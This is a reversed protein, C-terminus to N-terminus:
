RGVSLPAITEIITGHGQRSVIHFHAGVRRARERMHKLGWHIKQTSDAQDVDFGSGDDSVRLTLATTDYVVEVRIVDPNAHRVSNTVAEQGIRLLQEEVDARARAPAGMAVCEFKVPAGSTTLEGAERLAEVLGRTELAPSRLNWISRRTERVYHEVRERARMVQAKLGSASADLQSGIDDFDLVIAALSQLLTDHIDRAVRTREALVLEYRRRMMRLRLRWAFAVGFV